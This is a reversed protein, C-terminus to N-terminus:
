ARTGNPNIIASGACFATAPPQSSKEKDSGAATKEGKGRQRGFMLYGVRAVSMFRKVIEPSQRLPTFGDQQEHQAAQKGRMEGPQRPQEACEAPQGGGGTNVAAVQRQLLKLTLYLM